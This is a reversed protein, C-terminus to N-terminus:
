PKPKPKPGGPRPKPKYSASPGHEPGFLGFMKTM